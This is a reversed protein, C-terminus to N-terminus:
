TPRDTMKRNKSKSKKQCAATLKQLKQEEEFKMITARAKVYETEILKFEQRLQTIREQASNLQADKKLLEKQKHALLSDIKKLQNDYQRSFIELKKREDKTELRAQDILKLWRTESQEQLSHQQALSQKHDEAQSTLKEHLVKMEVQLRQCETVLNDKEEYVRKLREEYQKKLAIVLESQKLLRDNSIALEINLKQQSAAEQACRTSIETLKLELDIVAKKADKEKQLAIECEEQVTKKYEALQNQAHEMATQWLVEFASILEKPMHAPLSHITKQAYEDRWIKLHEAITTNSGTGLEERIKQVSPAIGQSLLKVAVQKVTEYNIGPRSM